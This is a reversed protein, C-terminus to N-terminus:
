TDNILGQCAQDEKKALVFVLNEKKEKEMQILGLCHFGFGNTISICQLLHQLLLFLILPQNSFRIQGGAGVENGTHRM